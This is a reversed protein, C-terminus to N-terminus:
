LSPLARLTNQIWNDDFVREYIRNRVRPAGGAIVIIGSLELIEVLPHNEDLTVLEGARIKRYFQLLDRLNARSRLLRERVFILNDDQEHARSCLLLRYCLDDLEASTQVRDTTVVAKCLKQTLYPHGATWHYIREMLESATQASRGLGKALPVLEAFAFDELEIRQGINFPTLRHDQMLESPTAVGLLCFALRHLEVDESGRNYMERIAAFFEDTSFPLSRVMDLEDVFIAVLRDSSPLIVRRVAGFFQQVPSLRQNDVWFRDLQEEMGLQWGLRSLMGLYWQDRTLNQGIATLDITVVKAGADRLKKATRIMLSSKGMQRCTLVYCFEGSLLGALLNRDAQREVYSPADARLTGGTHFREVQKEEILSLSQEAQRRRVIEAQLDANLRSLDRNREQLAGMLHNIKLHTDLRVLVEEARFPKSIFDVGGARFGEVIDLTSDNATIFVVPIERTAESARLQRCTEYGNLGPMNV